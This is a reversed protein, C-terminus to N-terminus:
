IANRLDLRLRARTTNLAWERVYSSRMAIAGLSRLSASRGLQRLQSARRLVPRVHQKYAREYHAAAERVDSKTGLLHGALVGTQLAISIGDGIFPDVFAAADGVNIVLDTTPTEPRFVLPYTAITETIQRWARSREHLVPHRQLVSDLGRALGKEAMGCVNIVGSSILQIGCYGGNFFYLHVGAPPNSEHFHAKFGVWGRPESQDSLESWRGTANVAATATFEADNGSVIFESTRTINRVATNERVVVGANIAANLLAQDLTLRSISVAPSRLAVSVCKADVHLAAHSIEPASGLLTPAAADLLAQLLDVSEASIFEGCVKHRPFTSKDLLLVRRGHRAATIATAAGAPGGGAVILDFHERM